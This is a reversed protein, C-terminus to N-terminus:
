PCTKLPKGLLQSLQPVDRGLLVPMPSIESVAAEVQIYVEDVEMELDELRYLVTDGHACRIIITDGSLIKEPPVLNVRVMTRSCDTDLLFGDVVSGEISGCHYLGRKHLSKNKEKCFM